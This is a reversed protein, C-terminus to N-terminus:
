KESAITMRVPKYSSDKYLNTTFLNVMNTSM